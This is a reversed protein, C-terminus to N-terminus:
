EVFGFRNIPWLVWRVCGLFQDRHICGMDDARSDYSDARNDGLVFYEDEGLTICMDETASTVYPESLPRSNVFLQGASFEITDGPLGIVRKVYSGSRGTFTCQMISGREPKGFHTVLAIDGSILTNEMSSGAIRVTSFLWTRAAFGIGIAVALVLLATLLRKM